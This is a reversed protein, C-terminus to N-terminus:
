KKNGSSNSMIEQTYGLNDCQKRWANLNDQAGAKGDDVMKFLRRGTKKAYLVANNIDDVSATKVTAEGRHTLYASDDNYVQFFRIKKTEPKFRVVTQSM